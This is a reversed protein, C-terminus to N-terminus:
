TSTRNRANLNARQWSKEKDIDFMLFYFLEIVASFKQRALEKTGM